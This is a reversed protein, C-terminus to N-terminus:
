YATPHVRQAKPCRWARKTSSVARSRLPLAVCQCVVELAHGALGFGTVDTLAHVGKLFILAAKSLNFDSDIM